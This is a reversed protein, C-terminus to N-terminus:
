VGCSELDFCTQEQLNNKASLLMKAQAVGSCYMKYLETRQEVLFVAARELTYVMIRM